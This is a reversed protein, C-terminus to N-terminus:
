RMEFIETHKLMFERLFNVNELIFNYARVNKELFREMCEKGPPSGPIKRLEPLFREEIM